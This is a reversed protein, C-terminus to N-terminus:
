AQHGPRKKRGAFLDLALKIGRKQRAPTAITAPKPSMYAGPTDISLPHHLVDLPPRSAAASRDFADVNVGVRAQCFAHVMSKVMDHRHKISPNLAAGAGADIMAQARDLHQVLADVAKQKATADYRM